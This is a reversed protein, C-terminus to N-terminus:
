HELVVFAVAQEREHSLSLHIATVGREAALREAQGSLHLSPRGGPANAVEVHRMTVGQAFGTGLAKLFAEKAAFRAAYRQDCSAGSGCYQQELPSFVRDLFRAGYRERLKGIRTVNCIDVGVGLIM